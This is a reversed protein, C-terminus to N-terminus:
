QQVVLCLAAAPTTATHPLQQGLTTLLLLLGETHDHAPSDSVSSNDWEVWWPEPLGGRPVTARLLGSQANKDISLKAQLQSGVLTVEEIKVGDAIGAPTGKLSLTEIRMIGPGSRTVGSGIGRATSLLVGAPEAQLRIFQYDPNSVPSYRVGGLAMPMGSTGATYPVIQADRAVLTRPSEDGQAELISLNMENDVGKQLLQDRVKGLLSRLEAPQGTALLYIPRNAKGVHVVNSQSNHLTGEFPLRLGLVGVAAGRAIDARMGGVMHTIEGQNVELDSILVRLPLDQSNAEDTTWLTQLASAVPPAFPECGKFFCPDTAPTVSGDGFAQAQKGGIRFAQIDLGEVQAALNISQLLKTWGSSDKAQVLGLMTGSGDVGVMLRTAKALPLAPEADPIPAEAAAPSSGVVCDPLKPDCGMLLLLSLPVLDLLPRARVAM